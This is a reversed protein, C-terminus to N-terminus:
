GAADVLRAVIGLPVAPRRLPAIGCSHRASGGARRVPACTRRSRSRSAPAHHSPRVIGSVLVSASRHGFRQLHVDVLHHAPQRMAIGEQEDIAHELARGALRMRASLFTVILSGNKGPWKGCRGTIGPTIIRSASACAAPMRANTVAPTYGVLLALQVEDADVLRAEAPRDLGAILQDQLRRQLARQAADPPERVRRRPPRRPPPSRRSSPRARRLRARCCDVRVTM